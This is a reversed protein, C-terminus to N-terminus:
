FVRSAPMLTLEGGLFLTARSTSPTVLTPLMRSLPHMSTTSEDTYVSNKIDIKGSGGAVVNWFASAAAMGSKANFICRDGTTISYVTGTNCSDITVADGLLVETNTFLPTSCTSLLRRGGAHNHNITVGQAIEVQACEFKYSADITLSQELVLKGAGSVQLGGANITSGSKVILTAGAGITYQTHTSITAGSLTVTKGANVSVTVPNGSTGVFQNSDLNSDGLFVDEGAAFSTQSVGYNTSLDAGAISGTFDGNTGAPISATFTSPNGTNLLSFVVSASQSAAPITM